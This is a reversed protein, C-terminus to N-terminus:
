GGMPHQPGIIKVTSLTTLYALIIQANYLKTDDYKIYIYTETV